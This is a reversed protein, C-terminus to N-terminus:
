RRRARLRGASLAAGRRILRGAEELAPGPDDWAFIANGGGFWARVPSPGAAGGAARGAWWARVDPTPHVWVRGTRYTAPAPVHRGLADHYAMAALPLGVAHAIEFQWWPRSNVELAKFTGDRADWKFEADFLGHFGLGAFLALLADRAPAVEDIPISVSLTSNGLEPPHMRLRRRALCARTVGRRDVYGDLFVHATAPGPIFEQLLMPVGERALREITSAAGARDTLQLGKVGYRTNFQQSDVPKLFFAPLEDDAFGDLVAPGEVALTRPIPMGHEGAAAAFRDKATLIGVVETTPVVAPFREAVAPPLDAAANAWTDTCPFIVARELPLEELFAALREGSPDDGPSEAQLPSFWPPRRIPSRNGGAVFLPIRERGLARTVALGTIHGGFVLAPPLDPGM